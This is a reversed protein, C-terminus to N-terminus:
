RLSRTPPPCGSSTPSKRRADSPPADRLRAGDGREARPDDPPMRRRAAALPPLEAVGGDAFRFLPAGPPNGPHARGRPLLPRLGASAATAACVAILPGPLRPAFRQLLLVTPWWRGPSARRRWIRGRSAVSSRRRGSRADADLRRPHGADRRADRAGGPLRCRHSLGRAGDAFPLRRSVRAQLLRAVLLGAATLLAVVGALAMYHASGLPAKGALGGALIAATASDAAVVLYRSSGLTAFAVLPLLLTYLGTVVPAGAIRAYGLAQPVNMAALSLGALTDRIVGSRTIPRLGRFFWAM